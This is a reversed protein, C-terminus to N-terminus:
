YILYPLPLFSLFFFKKKEFEININYKKKKLDYLIYFLLLLINREILKLM